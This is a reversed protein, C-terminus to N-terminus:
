KCDGLVWLTDGVVRCVPQGLSNVSNELKRVTKVVEKVPKIIRTKIPQKPPESTTPINIKDIPNRKEPKTLDNNRPKSNNSQDGDESDNFKFSNNDGGNKNNVVCSTVNDKTRDLPQILLICAIGKQNDELRDLVSQFRLIIVVGLVFTFVWLALAASWFIVLRNRVLSLKARHLRMDLLTM